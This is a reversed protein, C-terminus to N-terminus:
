FWIAGLWAIVLSFGAAWAMQRSCLRVAFKWSMERGITFLTVLCPLLVGALYVATLVQAPSELAVKLAGWDSDLLGIALGDKRISGLVVATAAEGPLHFVAMVPTLAKAISDLIGLWSLLAAAFCIAVFIPFAMVVFQKLTGAMERWVGRWDPQHLADMEPLLIRNNALRLAKPTTFRLYILTTVALVVLYVVGMGAMGAAAFVALTAPLQYSCASGFSIASVCAGRSCSHCARTAVIAPVNCGFGMVVRVLDRGGIGFPRLWPHLAVSLRDILGTSKYIALIASFVVITPVAYLLLFPFMALLGYDGGLLAAIWEPWGAIIALAPDVLSAVPDYLWDAFRNANVVAIAAPLFLLLLAVLPNSVIRTLLGVSRLSAPFVDETLQEVPNPFRPAEDIPRSAIARLGNAEVASLKRADVVLVPVNLTERLREAGKARDAKEGLQDAFTLIVMGPRGGVLPLLLELEEKARDARVVVAVREAGNLEALSSKSTETESDRYLGPTDTWRLDGDRYTECALTSGRYNEPQPLKKVLSALLQTKGVSELGLLLTRAVPEKAGTKRFPIIQQTNM